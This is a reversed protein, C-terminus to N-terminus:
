YVSARCSWQSVLSVVKKGTNGSYLFVQNYSQYMYTVISGDEIGKERIEETSWIYRDNQNRLRFPNRAGNQNLSLCFVVATGGRDNAKARSIVVAEQEGANLNPSSTRADEFM